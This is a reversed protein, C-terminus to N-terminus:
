FQRRYALTYHIGRDQLSDDPNDQDILDAGRYIELQLGPLPDWLLGVGVSALRERQTGFLPESEDESTGYDTFVALDLKGRRQGTEDVFAAFRYEISTALGKDRVLQSERYGRVTYRGGIPLKYMALLPDNTLQVLGRVLMRSDRWAIGRLYQMQGILAEFDADPADQHETPNLADVGVKVTARAVLAHPGNREVM